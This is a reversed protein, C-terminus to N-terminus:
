RKALVVVPLRDALQLAVALGALGAGVVVVPPVAGASSPDNIM